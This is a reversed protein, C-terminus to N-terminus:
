MVCDRLINIIEILNLEHRWICKTLGLWKIHIKNHSSSIKFLGAKEAAAQNQAEQSCLTPCFSASGPENMDTHRNM